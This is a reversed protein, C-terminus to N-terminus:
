APRRAHSAMAISRTWDVCLDLQTQADIAQIAGDIEHKYYTVELDLRDM